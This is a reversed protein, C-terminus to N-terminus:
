EGAEGIAGVLRLWAEETEDAAMEDDVNQRALTAFTIPTATEDGPRRLWCTVEHHVADLSSVSFDFRTEATTDARDADRRLDIWSGTERHTGPALERYEQGCHPCDQPPRDDYCVYEDCALCIHPAGFLYADLKADQHGREWDRAVQPAALQLKARGARLLDDRSKGLTLVFVEHVRKRASATSTSIGLRTTCFYEWDYNLDHGDRRAAVSEWVQWREVTKIGLKGDDMLIPAEVRERLRYILWCQDLWTMSTLEGTVNWLSATLLADMERDEAQGSQDLTKVAEVLSAWIATLNGVDHASIAAKASVMLAKNENM